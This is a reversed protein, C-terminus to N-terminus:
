ARVGEWDVTAGHELAHIVYQADEQWVRRQAAIQLLGQGAATMWADIFRLAEFLPDYAGGLALKFAELKILAGRQTSSGDRADRHRALVVLQHRGISLLDYAEDYGAGIEHYRGAAQAELGLQLLTVLMARSAELDPKIFPSAM